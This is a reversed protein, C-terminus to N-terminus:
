FPAPRLRSAEAEPIVQKEKQPGPGRRGPGPLARRPARGKDARTEPGGPGAAAGAGGPRRERNGRLRGLFHACVANQVKAGSSCSDSSGPSFVRFSFGNNIAPSNSHPVMHHSKDPGPRGWGGPGGLTPCVTGPQCHRRGLGHAPFAELAGKRAKLGGCM